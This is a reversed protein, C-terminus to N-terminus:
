GNVEDNGLADNNGGYNLHSGMNEIFCEFVAGMELDRIGENPPEQMSQHRPTDSCCSLSRLAESLSPLGIQFITKKFPM